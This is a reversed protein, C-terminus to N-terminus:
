QTLLSDRIYPMLEDYLSELDQKASWNWSIMNGRFWTMQRKAYRRTDTKARETAAELSMDGKLHALLPRVGLARIAPLGSNSLGRELLGAVEDMAGAGLMIDFRRDCRAYLYARDPALVIKAVRDPDLIPRGPIQQWEGLSRGTAELVELARVVRQPDRPDLRQAMEPDRETLIKHLEEASQQSAAQRWHERVGDPIDPVPSLGQLLASFYLGTGGVIVPVRGERVVEEIALAVDQAWHGVSYSEAVSVHETSRMRWM